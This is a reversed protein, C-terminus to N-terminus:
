LKRRLQDSGSGLHLAYAALDATIGATLFLGMPWQYGENGHFSPRIGEYLIAGLIFCFGSLFSPFTSYYTPISSTLFSTVIVIGAIGAFAIGLAGLVLAATGANKWHSPSDLYIMLGLDYYLQSDWSQTGTNIVGTNSTWTAYWQQLGIYVHQQVTPTSVNSDVVWNNSTLAALAFCVSISLLVFSVSRTSVGM